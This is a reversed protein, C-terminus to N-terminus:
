RTFGLNFNWLSKECRVDAKLYAVAGPFLLIKKEGGDADAEPSDEIDKSKKKRKKSNEKEQEGDQETADKTTEPEQHKRKESAM